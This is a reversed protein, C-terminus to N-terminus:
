INTNVDAYSREAVLAQAVPVYGTPYTMRVDGNRTPEASYDAASFSSPQPFPGNGGHALAFPSDSRESYWSRVHRPAHRLPRPQRSTPQVQLRRKTKGPYYDVTVRETAVWPLGHIQHIFEKVKSLHGTLPEETGSSSADGMKAYDPAPKLEPSTHTRSASATDATEDRHSGVTAGTPSVQMDYMTTPLKEENRRIGDFPRQRRSLKKTFWHYVSLFTADAVRNTTNPEEPHQQDQVVPYHNPFSQRPWSAYPTDM